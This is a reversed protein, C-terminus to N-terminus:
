RFSITLRSDDRSATSKWRSAVTDSDIEVEAIIGTVFLFWIRNNDIEYVFHKCNNIWKFDIKIQFYTIFDSSGCTLTTRRSPQQMSFSGIKTIRSYTLRPLNCVYKRFERASRYTWKEDTLNHLVDIKLTDILTFHIFNVLRDVLFNIITYVKWAWSFWETWFILCLLRYTKLNSQIVKREIEYGNSEETGYAM